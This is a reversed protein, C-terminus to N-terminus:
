QHSYKGSGTAEGGGGYEGRRFGSLWRDGPIVSTADGDAVFEDSM